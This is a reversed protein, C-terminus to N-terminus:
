DKKDKKKLYSFYDMTLKFGEKMTFKPKYELENKGKSIDYYRNGVILNMNGLEWEPPPHKNFGCMNIIFCFIKLFWCIIWVIFYPIGIYPRKYGFGDWIDGILDWFKIPEDNTIFYANGAPASDPSVLKEAALIHAYSVNKVYTWDVINQGNGLYFRNRGAEAAKILNPVLTVDRPGFIRHPRIAVTMFGDKGNSELVFKEQIMKSVYYPNPNSEKIYPCNTEDGGLINFEDITVGVSSTSIFKKSVM